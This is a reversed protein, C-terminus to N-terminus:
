KLEHSMPVPDGEKLCLAERMRRICPYCVLQPDPGIHMEKDNWVFTPPHFHYPCDLVTRITELLEKKTM